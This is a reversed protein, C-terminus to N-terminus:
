KTITTIRLQFVMTRNLKCTPKKFEKFARSSGDEHDYNNQAPFGYNQKIQYSRKMPIIANQYCGKLLKFAFNNVVVVSSIKKGHAPFGYDQEIQLNTKPIQNGLSILIQLYQSILIEQNSFLPSWSILKEQNKSILSILILDLDSFWVERLFGWLITKPNLFKQRLLRFIHENDWLFFSYVDFSGNEWDACSFGITLSTLLNKALFTGQFM